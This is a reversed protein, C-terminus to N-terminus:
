ASADGRGRRAWRSSAHLEPRSRVLDLALSVDKQYTESCRAGANSIRVNATGLGFDDDLGNVSGGGGFGDVECPTAPSTDPSEVTGIWILSVGMIRLFWSIRLFTDLRLENLWRPARALALKPFPSALSYGTMTSTVSTQQQGFPSAALRSLSSAALEPSSPHNASKVEGEREGWGCGMRLHGGVLKVLVDVALLGLRDPHAMQEHEDALTDGRRECGRAGDIAARTRGVDLALALRFGLRRGTRPCLLSLDDCSLEHLIHQPHEYLCFDVGVWLRRTSLYTARSMRASGDKSRGSVM